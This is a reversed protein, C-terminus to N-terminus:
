YNKIGLLNAKIALVGTNFFKSNTRIISTYKPEVFVFINVKQATKSLTIKEIHGIKVKRYYLPSNVNLGAKSSTQLVIRLGKQYHSAIPNITDLQFEKKIGDYKDAILILKSGFIISDPNKVGSLGAQFTELYLKSNKGFLYQYKKTIKITATINKDLAINEVKGIKFGNFELISGQKLGNTKNMKLTITFYNNKNLDNYNLLKFVKKNDFHKEKTSVLIEGNLISDITPTQIKIGNLNAKINIGSKTYFKTTKNLLNAFQKKILVKKSDVVKGIVVNKYKILTGKKLPNDSILTISISDKAYLYEDLNSKSEFVKFEKKTLLEKKQTLFSVGGLIADKIDPIQLSFKTLSAKMEVANLKYFLTSDDILNQYKEYIKFHNYIKNNKLESSLLEGVKFGKYILYSPLKEDSVITFVYGKKVIKPVYFSYEKKPKNDKIKTEIRIAGTLLNKFSPITFKIGKLSAKFELQKLPIFKTDSALIDSYKSYILVKYYIYSNKLDKDIIEGVQIGKYILISSINFSTDKTKIFTTIGNLPPHNLAIFQTEDPLKLLENKNQKPPLVEIYSGTIITGLNKIGKLSIEPSVKWFKTGKKILYDYKKYMVLYAKFERLNNEDIKIDEINGVKIGNFMLPSKKINLGNVNNLIITLHKGTTKYKDKLMIVALILAVIPIMWYLFIFSKKKKIAQKM